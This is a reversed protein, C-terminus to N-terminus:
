FKFYIFSTSTGAIIFITTLALTILVFLIGSIYYLHTGATHIVPIRSEVASKFYKLIYDFFRTAGLIGIMLVFITRTNLYDALSSLEEPRGGAGFM